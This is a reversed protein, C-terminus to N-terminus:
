PAAEATDCVLLVFFLLGGLTLLPTASRGRTIRKAVDYELAILM